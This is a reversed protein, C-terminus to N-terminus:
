YSFVSAIDEYDDSMTRKIEMTKEKGKPLERLM